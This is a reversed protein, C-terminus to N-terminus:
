TGPFPNHCTIHSQQPILGSLPTHSSCARSLGPGREDPEQGLVRHVPDEATKGHRRLRGNVGACIQELKISTLCFSYVECLLYM